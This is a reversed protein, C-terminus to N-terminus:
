HHMGQAIAQDFDLPKTKSPDHCGACVEATPKPNMAATGHFTGMGHCSECQVGRLHLSDKVELPLGTEDVEATFNYGSPEGFGVVHCSVCEDIHQKTDQVLTEYARAHPTESWTTYIDMHCRACMEGGLYKETGQMVAKKAAEERTSASKRKAHDDDFAKVMPEFVPDKAVEKDLPKGEGNYDTIAGTEDLTLELVSLYQGRNGPRIMLTEGIRDPNFMYGPNHGVVVVDMGPQEDVIRRADGPSLHLLGVVVDVQESLSPVVRALSEKVDLFDFDDSKQVGRTVNFSYFSGATVGTVGYTVGGKEIVVSEPFVLNGAKDVINASVVEIGPQTSLLQELESRGNLLENPGPTLADYGLEGMIKWLFETKSWPDFGRHGGFDGADV